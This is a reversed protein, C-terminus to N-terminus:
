TQKVNKSEVFGKVCGWERKFKLFNIQASNDKSELLHTYLEPTIYQQPVGKFRKKYKIMEKKLYKGIYQKKGVTVFEDFVHELELQGMEKGIVPMLRGDIEFM